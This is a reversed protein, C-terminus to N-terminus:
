GSRRHHHRGHHHIAAARRLLRRKRHRRVTMAARGLTHLMIVGLVLLGTILYQLQESFGRLLLVVEIIAIVIVGIVDEVTLAPAAPFAPAASWCRPLRRTTTGAASNWIPPGTDRPSCCGGIATCAGAIAYALTITATIYIGAAIAARSNSGVMTMARGIRTCSMVFQGVIVFAFLIIAVVPVGAIGTKSFRSAPVARM